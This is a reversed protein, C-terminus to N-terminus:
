IQPRVLRCAFRPSPELDTTARLSRLATGGKPLQEVGPLRGGNVTVPSARIVGSTIRNFSKRTANVRTRAM